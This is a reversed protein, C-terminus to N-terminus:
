KPKVLINDILYLEGFVGAVVVVADRELRELSKGTKYDHIAVFSVESRANKLADRLFSKIENTSSNLPWEYVEQLKKCVHMARKLQGATLFKNRSSSPLGSSDRIIPVVIPKIKYNFDKLLYVISMTQYIDKQGLMSVDPLLINFDKIFSLIHHPSVLLESFTQNFFKGEKLLAESYPNTVSINTIKEEYMEWMSPTFFMDVKNEKTIQIDNEFDNDLYYKERKKFRSKRWLMFEQPFDIMVIVIDANEKAIKVLEMHGKHLDGGTNVTAITKGEAKVQKCYDHAEEISKIIHM